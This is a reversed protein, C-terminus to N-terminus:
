GALFGLVAIVGIVGVYFAVESYFVIWGMANVFGKLERTVPGDSKRIPFFDAKRSKKSKAIKNEAECRLFPSKGCLRLPSM